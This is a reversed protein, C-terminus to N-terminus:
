YYFKIVSKTNRIQFGINSIITGVACCCCDKIVHVKSQDDDDDDNLM